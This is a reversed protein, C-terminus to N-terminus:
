ALSQEYITEKGMRRARSKAAKCSAKFGLKSRTENYRGYSGRKVWTAETYDRRTLGYGKM